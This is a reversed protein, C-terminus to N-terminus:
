DAKPKPNRRHWGEEQLYEALNEPMELEFKVETQQIGVKVWVIMNPYNATSVNYGFAMGLMGSMYRILSQKLEIKEHHHNGKTMAPALLDHLQTASSEGLFELLQEIVRLWMDIDACDSNPIEIDTSEM